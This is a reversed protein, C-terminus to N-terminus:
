LCSQLADNREGAKGGKESQFGKSERYKEVFHKRKELISKSRIGAKIQSALNLTACQGMPVTCKWVVHSVRTSWNEGM